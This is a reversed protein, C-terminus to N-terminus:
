LGRRVDRLVPEIVREISARLPSGGDPEAGLACGFVQSSKAGATSMTDLSRALEDLGNNDGVHGRSETIGGEFGLKGAATYLLVTGSTSAHFRAAEVGRDDWVVNAGPIGKRIEPLEKWV